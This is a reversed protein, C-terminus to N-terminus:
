EKSLLNRNPTRIEIEEPYLHSEGGEAQFTILLPSATTTVHNFHVIYKPLKSKKLVDVSRWGVQLHLLRFHIEVWAGAERTEIM